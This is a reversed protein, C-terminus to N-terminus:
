HVSTLTFGAALQCVTKGISVWIGSELWTLPTALKRFASLSRSWMWLFATPNVHGSSPTSSAQTYKIGTILQSRSPTCLPQVYYNELRVGESALKDLTPSRIEGSHYGIDNFGQDDTLIFIIHPPQKPKFAAADPNEEVRFGEVDERNSRMSACAPLSLILLVLLAMDVESLASVRDFYEDTKNFSLKTHLCVIFKLLPM